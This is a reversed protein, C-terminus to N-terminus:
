RPCIGLAVPMVKSVGGGYIATGDGWVEELRPTEFRVLRWLFTIYYLANILVFLTCARLYLHICVNRHMHNKYVLSNHWISYATVGHPGHQPCQYQAAYLSGSFLFREM